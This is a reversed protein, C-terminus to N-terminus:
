GLRNMKNLEEAARSTTQLFSSILQANERELEQVRTELESNAKEFKDRAEREIKLETDSKTARELSLQLETKAMSIEAKQDILLKKQEFILSSLDNARSSLSNDAKLKSQTGIGHVGRMSWQYMM